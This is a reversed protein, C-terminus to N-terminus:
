SEVQLTIGENQRIAKFVLRALGVLQVLISIALYVELGTNWNPLTSTFWDVLAPPSDHRALYAPNLGFVSPGTLLAVLLLLGFVKIGIAIWRMRADWFARRALAVNFIIKVLFYTILWPQYVAFAESLVPVFTWVSNRKNGFGIWHPFVAFLVIVGTLFLVEAWLEGPKVAQRRKDVKLGAPDWTRQMEKFPWRLWDKPTTREILAFAFVVMGFVQFGQDFFSDIVNLLHIGEWGAPLFLGILFQLVYLALVFFLVLKFIPFITPGILATTQQYNQAFTIPPGFTKLVEIAMEEDPQRGTSASKDELSDELLSLIELQIDKRKRRPLYRGVEAAYQGFLESYENKESM